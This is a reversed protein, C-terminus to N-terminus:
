HSRTPLNGLFDGYDGGGFSACCSVAFRDLFWVSLSGLLCFVCDIVLGLLSFGVFPVVVFIACSSCYLGEMWFCAPLDLGPLGLWVAFV